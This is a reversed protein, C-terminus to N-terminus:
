WLQDCEEAVARVAGHLAEPVSALAEASIEDSFRLREADALERSTPMWASHLVMPITERNTGALTAIPGAGVDAADFLEVRFGDDNCVPQVVYGDHGGPEGGSYCGPAPGRPAFTPSTVHDSVDAYEWRAKLEM